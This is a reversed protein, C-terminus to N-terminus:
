WWTWTSPFTIYNRPNTKIDDPIGNGNGDPYLEFHLHSGASNGSDGLTGVQTGQSVSQGQSVNISALHAYLSFYTGTSTNHTVMVYNGYGGNCTNVGSVFTECGGKATTVVGAATALIPDYDANDLDIGVHGSYCAYECTVVGTRLPKIFKSSSSSSSSSSSNSSSSNSSNNTVTQEKLCGNSKTGYVNPCSDNQNIIGDEDDDGLGGCNSGVVDEGSCGYSEYYALTDEMMSQDEAQKALTDDIEDISESQIKMLTEFESQKTELNIQETKLNAENQVLEALQKELITKGYQLEAEIDVLDEVVSGAYESISNVSDINRLINSLGDEAPNLVMEVLTNSNGMRQMVQLMDGAESKAEPIKEQIEEIAAIQTDIEKQKKEIKVKESEINAEMTEIESKVEVLEKEAEVQNEKINAQEEVAEATAEKIAEIEAELEDLTQASYVTTSLILSLILLISMIKKIYKTNM